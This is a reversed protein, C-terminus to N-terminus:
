AHCAVVERWYALADAAIDDLSLRPTWGTHATLKSHDGQVVPTDLPRLLEESEKVEVPVLALALLADLVEQATHSEGSCVNYVEGAKGREVLLRCACAADSVHTYDRASNLNGVLLRDQLGGEVRAIGSAFDAVIYGRAQGAGVLNFCRMLMVDIGYAQAYVRAMHAQAVKSVAYPNSPNLPRDESVGRGQDGLVGYEDSSGVLVVRSAPSVARVAELVNLSGVANLQMTLQPERWSKAVSAQGALNIVVNPMVDALTALLQGENLIDLQLTDSLGELSCAVVDHRHALLERQIYAGLFGEAGTVLVRM